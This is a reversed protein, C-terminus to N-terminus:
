LEEYRDSAVVQSVIMEPIPMEGYDAPRKRLASLHKTIWLPDYGKAPTSLWDEFSQMATAGEDQM